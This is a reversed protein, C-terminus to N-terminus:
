QRKVHGCDAKRQPSISTVLRSPRCLSAYQTTAEAGDAFKTGEIADLRQSCGSRSAVGEANNRGNPIDDRARLSALSGRPVRGRRRGHGRRHPLYAQDSSRTKGNGLPSVGAEAASTPARLVRCARQPRAAGRMKLAVDLRDLRRAASSSFIVFGRARARPKM